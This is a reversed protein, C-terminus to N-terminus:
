GNAPAEDRSRDGNGNMTALDAMPAPATADIRQETHTAQTAPAARRAESILRRYLDVYDRAMRPLSFRQEVARRVESRPLQLLRPLAAVAQDVDEVVMGTVGEEIVERVSGPPYALVPTGRAAAEIMVLGFPEPWDIPFLLASAHGLFEDKDDEAIEGVFEIEGQLLPRIENEFYEEDVPDVKAAIKLPLGARRAIEIAHDLGKEPSTRGLFALYSGPDTSPTIEDMPLGHYITAQWNLDPLPSRQADSISVLAVDEFEGYLAALDPLDMRGHMTAVSPTALRRMAGLQLHDMHFHIVDYRDADAMVREILRVAHALPDIVDPDLRLARPTLEVLEAATVSDGSAYLTVQHGQRVLEETLYSVIRETGGYMQPPVSEALPAVQAIRLAAGRSSHM